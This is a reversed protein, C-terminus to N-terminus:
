PMGSQPFLLVGNILYKNIEIDRGWKLKEYDDTGPPIEMVPMVSGATPIVLYMNAYRHKEYPLLNIWYSADTPATTLSHPRFWTPQEFTLSPRIPYSPAM